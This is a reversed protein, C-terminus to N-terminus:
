AAPEKGAVDSIESTAVSKTAAKGCGPCLGVFWRSYESCGRTWCRDKPGPEFDIQRAPTKWDNLQRNEFVDLAKGVSRALQALAARAYRDGGAPEQSHPKQRGTKFEDTAQAGPAPRGFLEGTMFAEALHALLEAHEEGLGSQRAKLQARLAVNESRALDREKTRDKLLKAHLDGSVHHDINCHPEVTPSM